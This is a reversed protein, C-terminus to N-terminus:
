SVSYFNSVDTPTEVDKSEGTEARIRGFSTGNSIHWHRSYWSAHSRM